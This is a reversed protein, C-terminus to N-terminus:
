LRTVEVTCDMHKPMDLKQGDGPGERPKKGEDSEDEGEDEDDEM